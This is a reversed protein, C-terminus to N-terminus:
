LERQRRCNHRHLGRWGRFRSRRVGYDSVDAESESEADSASQQAESEADSADQQAESEADSADQQAESEADSADQQAESEADSAAQSDEDAAALKFSLFSPPSDLVVPAVAFALSTTALLLVRRVSRGPDTSRCPSVGCRSQEFRNSNM